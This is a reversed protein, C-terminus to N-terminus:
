EKNGQYHEDRCSICSYNSVRHKTMTDCKKCFGQYYIAGNEKATQRPSM